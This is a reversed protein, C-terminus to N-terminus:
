RLAQELTLAADTGPDRYKVIVPTQLQIGIRKAYEGPAPRSGPVVVARSPVRLPEGGEARYVRGNVLDHLAVAGTLIVGPALVAEGGVQVGEYVGCGGGLFAGDEVVVPCAGVPELVGGIQAAASLHVGAGVQACSGVLAHSDIMSGEGVWAGVNIYAPPMVVVGKGLYAGRRVTTGGPVVRVDAHMARTDLTPFAERDRFHFVASLHEERSGGLRFGLLIGQKVWGNVFWGRNGPEAARVEGSELAGLLADVVRLATERSPSREASLQEVAQRLEGPSL